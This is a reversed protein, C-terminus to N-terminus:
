QECTREEPIPRFLSLSRHTSPDQVTSLQENTPWELLDALTSYIDFPSSLRNANVKLNEFAKAGQESERFKKPLFVSFFPLREELQGQQTDRLKAFRHGHDAMVIVLSNDFAGSEHMRRLHAELDDDLVQALNIDDHSLISHHMLLFKAVDAPYRRHFEEAYRFWQWQQPESGICKWDSEHKENYQFFTRTYHDTPQEKFGKLRYTFTGINAADEGYLTAYGAKSFNRWIFPYVDVFKAEAYRRRTLPLEEETQSTLIPIFAQPTGDGVINY